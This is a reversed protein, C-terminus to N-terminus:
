SSIHIDPICGSSVAHTYNITSETGLTENGTRARRSVQKYMKNEAGVGM